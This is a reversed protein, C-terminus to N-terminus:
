CNVGGTLTQDPSLISCPTRQTKKASSAPRWDMKMASLLEMQWRGITTRCFTQWRLLKLTQGPLIDMSRASICLVSRSSRMSNRGHPYLIMDFAAGRLGIMRKTTRQLISCYRKSNSRQGYRESNQMVWGFQALSCIYM